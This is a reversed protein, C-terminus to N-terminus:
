FSFHKLFFSCLFYFCMKQENAKKYFDNREHSLTSFYKLYKKKAYQAGTLQWLLIKCKKARMWSGLSLIWVNATVSAKVNSHHECPLNHINKFCRPCRYQGTIIPHLKNTGTLDTHLLMTIREWSNKSGTCQRGRFEPTKNLMLNYLLGTKDTNV